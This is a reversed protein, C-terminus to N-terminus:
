WEVILLGPTGNSASSGNGTLSGHVGGGGGGGCGYGYGDTAPAPTTSGNNGRSAGGATGFPGGGGAGGSAGADATSSGEQGSTGGPTGGAGGAVGSSTGETGGLYGYTGGILTLLSGFSTNGGSTGVAAPTVNGRGGYGGTGGSGITINYSQGPVVTYPQRIVSQGAGGGGGGGSARGVVSTAGGGGGGGGGGSCGSIYVTTVDTPCIWTGSSTFRQTGRPANAKLAAILNTLILATNGNDLVNQGSKDAIFQALVSAIATSQRLAKNVQASSAKGSNFGSLLAPLAEYDAQSMVNAAGSAAFPKFNNTAM